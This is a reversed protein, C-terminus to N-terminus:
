KPGDGKVSPELKSIYWWSGVALAFGAVIDILYHYWLYMCAAMTLVTMVAMFPFHKRKHFYVAIAVHVMTATHMSPFCDTVNSRYSEFLAYNFPAILGGRLAGPVSEQLFYKPGVIPFFVFFIFAIYHTLLLPLIYARFARTDKHNYLYFGYGFSVPFYALYALAMFDTIAVSANITFLESPQFSFLLHNFDIILQDLFFDAEFVGINEYILALPVFISLDRAIMSATRKFPRKKRHIFGGALSCVIVTLLVATTVWLSFRELNLSRQFLPFLILLPVVFFLPLFHDIRIGRM